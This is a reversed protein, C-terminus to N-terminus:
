IRDRRWGIFAVFALILTGVFAATLILQDSRGSAAPSGDSAFSPAVFPTVVPGANKLITGGQAPPLRVGGAMVELPTLPVQATFSPQATWPGAAPMLVAWITPAV